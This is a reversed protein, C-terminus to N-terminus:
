GDRDPDEQFDLQPCDEGSQLEPLSYSQKASLAILM